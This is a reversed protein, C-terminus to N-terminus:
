HGYLKIPVCGPGNTEADFVASKTSYCCLQTSTVSVVSGVSGLPLSKMPRGADMNEERSDLGLM